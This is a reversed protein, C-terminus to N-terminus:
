LYQDGEQQVQLNPQTPRDGISDPTNPKSVYSTVNGNSNRMLITPTGDIIMHQVANQELMGGINIHHEPM